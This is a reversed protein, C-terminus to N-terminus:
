YSVHRLQFKDASIKLDECLLHGEKSVENPILTLETKNQNKGGQQENITLTVSM